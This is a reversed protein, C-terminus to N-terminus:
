LNWGDKRAEEISDYKFKTSYPIRGEMDFSVSFEISGDPKHTKKYISYCTGLPIEVNSKTEKKNHQIRHDANVNIRTVNQSATIYDNAISFNIHIM